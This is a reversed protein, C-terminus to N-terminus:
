VLHLCVFLRTCSSPCPTLSIDQNSQSRAFYHYLLSNANRRLSWVASFSKVLLNQQPSLPGNYRRVGHARSQGWSTILPATAPWRYEWAGQPLDIAKVPSGGM